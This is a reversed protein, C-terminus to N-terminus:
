TRAVSGLKDSGYNSCQNVLEIDEPTENGEAGVFTADCRSVVAVGGEQTSESEQM